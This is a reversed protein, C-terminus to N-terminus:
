YIEIKRMEKVQLVGTTAGHENGTYLRQSDVHEHITGWDSQSYHAPLQPTQTNGPNLTM